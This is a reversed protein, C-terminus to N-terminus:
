GRVDARSARQSGADRERVWEIKPARRRLKEIRQHYLERGTYNAKEPLSRLHEHIHVLRREIPPHTSLWNAVNVPHDREIQQAKRLFAELARPDYGARNLYEISLRDAELEERWLLKRSIGVYVGEIISRV